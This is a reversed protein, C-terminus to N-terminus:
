KAPAAQPARPGSTTLHVTRDVKFAGVLRLLNGMRESSQVATVALEEASAATDQTTQSLEAVGRNVQDVNSKQNGAATAAETLLANVSTTEVDIAGLVKAVEAAIRTGNEARRCAEEILQSTETAAAASRQALNRVEEAVVAFGKGADGARAAEVAANLALLNTQFSVDQIVGVIRTVTQSSEQIAAMAQELRGVEATGAQVAAKARSAGGSANGCAVATAGALTNIEELAANIEQITAANQSAGQALRQSEKSIMKSSGEVDGSLNVVNAIADHIRAAFRDFWGAAEGIEDNRQFCLRRTLDGEGEAVDRLQAALERIPQRLLRQLFVWFAFLGVALVPLGLLLTDTIFAMISADCHAMPMAVEYAGHMTGPKWGEMRFGAIDKGDHTPSRSPEGHCQMCSEDLRIARLFHLHNTTPDIRALDLEGGSEVQSTLDSLMRARFEGAKGDQRPDNAENRADFATIRFDIKERKAAEAAAAWGAVVPIAGFLRAKSYGEGNAVKQQLEAVLQDTQFVGQQHLSALHNKSADAVATLAAAKGVMLETAGARYSHVSSWFLVGCVCALVLVSVAMVRTSLSRTANM